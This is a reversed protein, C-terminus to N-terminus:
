TRARSRGDHSHSAMALLPWGPLNPSQIPPFLGVLWGLPIEDAMNWGTTRVYLSHYTRSRPTPASLNNLLRLMAGLGRLARSTALETRFVRGNPILPRFANALHCCGVYSRTPLSRQLISKFKEVNCPEDFRGLPAFALIERGLALHRGAVVM